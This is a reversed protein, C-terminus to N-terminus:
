NCCEFVIDDSPKGFKFFHQQHRGFMKRLAKKIASEDAGQNKMRLLLTHVSHLFNDYNSTAKGIRLVEAGITAYFMKGPINSCKYPPRVASIKFADRKDFLKSTM